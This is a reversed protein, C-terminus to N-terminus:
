PIASAELIKSGRNFHPREHYRLKRQKRFQEAEDISSHVFSLAQPSLPAEWREWQGPSRTFGKAVVAASRQVGCCPCAMLEDCATVACRWGGDKQCYLEAYFVPFFGFGLLQLSLSDFSPVQM